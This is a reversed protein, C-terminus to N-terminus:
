GGMLDAKSEKDQISLAKGRGSFNVAFTAADSYRYLFCFGGRLKKQEIKQRIKDPTTPEWRHYGSVFDFGSTDEKWKRPEGVAELVDTWSSGIEVKARAELGQQTPDFAEVSSQTLKLVGLGVIGLLVLIIVVKM